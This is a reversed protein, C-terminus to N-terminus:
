QKPEAIGHLGLSPLMPWSCDPSRLRDEAHVVLGSM